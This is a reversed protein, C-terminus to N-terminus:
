NNSIPVFGLPVDIYRAHGKPLVQVTVIMTSTAALNHNLDVVCIVAKDQNDNLNASLEGNVTMQSYIASVVAGEITKAYIPSVTGTPTIQVDDLLYDLLTDYAIRYAKDIVRRHTIYHYDDSVSTALPGDTFFYGTRGVHNRFTIYGKDHLSEVDYDEVLDDVVYVELPKLAGEAVRGINVQVSVKALRGALVGLAAGKSASTGTRSETDGILIGVRNNSQETLDALDTHEGDFAYGELICFLPAKKDATYDELLTQAKTKALVIDDDIGNTVVSTYGSDPNMLGFLGRLRGNAKNLLLEVPAIGSVGDPTFLDSMKVPTSEEKQAFTMLWIERGNGSEQFFESFFKYVVHNDTNDIIGLAAVDKMSKLVYAKENKLTDGIEKCLTVVGFVGDPSPAVQGLAGNEFQIDIGPLM